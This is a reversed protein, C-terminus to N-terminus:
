KLIPQKSVKSMRKVYSCVASVQAIRYAGRQRWGAEMEVGPKKLHMSLPHEPMEKVLAPEQKSAEISCGRLM